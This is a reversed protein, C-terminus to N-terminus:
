AVQKRRRGFLAMGALGFGILALTGPEPVVEIRLGAVRFDNTFGSGEAEIVLSSLIGLNVPNTLTVNCRDRNGPFYCSASGIGAGNDIQGFGLFGGNLSIRAQDDFLNGGLFRSEVNEFAIGILRLTKNSSLGLFLNEDPGFDDINPNEFRGSQIGLGESNQVVACFSGNDRTCTASTNVGLPGMFNLGNGAVIGSGDTYDLTIITANATSVFGLLGAAFIASAILRKM